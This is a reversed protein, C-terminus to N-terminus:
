VQQVPQIPQAPQIGQAPQDGLIVKFEADPFLVVLDDELEAPNLALARKVANLAGERAAMGNTTARQQQPLNAYQQGYACAMSRWIRWNQDGFEAIYERSAKLADEYGEPPPQYLLAQILGELYAPSERAAVDVRNFQSSLYLRTWLYSILFGLVLFYAIMVSTLNATVGPKPFAEAVYGALSQYNSPIKGLEALGLAIVIKTLWDSVQELNTNPRYASPRAIFGGGTPQAPQDLARPIGFLFGTLAGCALSAGSVFVAAAVATWRNTQSWVVMGAAILGLLLSYLLPNSWAQGKIASLARAATTSLSNQVGESKGASM